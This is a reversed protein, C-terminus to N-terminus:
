ERPPTPRKGITAQIEIEKGEHRLKFRGAKGPELAAILDLMGQADKVPKGEVALLVDGPRIGAKDAPSGRM